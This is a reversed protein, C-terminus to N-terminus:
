PQTRQQQQQWTPCMVDEQFPGCDCGCQFHGLGAEQRDRDGLGFRPGVLWVLVGLASLPGDEACIPESLAILFSLSSSQRSRAVYIVYIESLLLFSDADLPTQQTQM